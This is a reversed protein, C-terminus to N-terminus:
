ETLHLSIDLQQLEDVHVKKEIRLKKKHHKGDAGSVVVEAEATVSYDGPPVRADFEGMRTTTLELHPGKADTRRVKVTAGAIASGDPAFVTGVIIGIKEPKKDAYAPSLSSLGWLLLFSCAVARGANITM